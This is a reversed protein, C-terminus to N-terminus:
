HHVLDRAPTFLALLGGHCRHYPRATPAKPTLRVHPPIMWMKTSLTSQYHSVDEDAPVLGEGCLDGTAIAVSTSPGYKPPLTQYHRLFVNAGEPILVEILRDHLRRSCHELTLLCPPAV